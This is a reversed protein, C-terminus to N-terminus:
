APIYEMEQLLGHVHLDGLKTFSADHYLTNQQIEYPDLVMDRLLREADMVNNIRNPYGMTPNSPTGYESNYVVRDIIDRLQISIGITQKVLNMLRLDHSKNLLSSNISYPHHKPSMWSYGKSYGCNPECEKIRCIQKYDVMSGNVYSRGYDIIKVIYRSKFSVITGDPLHYHYQIYKGNVPKYLLVNNSHLDYHTFDNSLMSLTYYIQYLCYLLDNEKFEQSVSKSHITPADKIHQILISIYRSNICSDKYDTRPYQTLINQLKNISIGNQSNRWGADTNYKYVGYTEVFCPFHKNFRNVTQGVKYEYMLNDSDTRVSSKLIAHAFYNQHKYEIEYIFGNNSPAGIRRRNVAYDFNTFNNFFKKIKDSKTGFAICVGSDSCIHKLFEATIKHKKRFMFNKLTRAARTKKSSHGSPPAPAAVIVPTHPPLVAEPPTRRVPPTRVRPAPQVVVLENANKECLGTRKNRRTGKPCRKQALVVVPAPPPVRVPPTPRRVPSTPRRVPPTPRRVPPPPPTLADVNKECLGSRKNRRTGKPCRPLKIDM